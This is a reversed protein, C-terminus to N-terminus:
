IEKWLSKETLQKPISSEPENTTAPTFRKLIVEPNMPLIGTSKFSSLVNERTFSSQWAAWYFSTEKRLQLFAKATTFTPQLNELTREQFLDMCYWMLLNFLIPQMLSFAFLFYGNTFASILLNWHLTLDIAMWLSFGGSEGQKREQRETSFRSL